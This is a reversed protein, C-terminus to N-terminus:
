GDCEVDLSSGRRNSSGFRGDDPTKRGEDALVRALAQKNRAAQKKKSCIDLLQARGCARGTARAV